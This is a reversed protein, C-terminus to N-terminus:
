RSEQPGAVEDDRNSVTDVSATDPADTDMEILPIVPVPVGPNSDDAIAHGLNSEDVISDRLDDDSDTDALAVFRTSSSVVSHERQTRRPALHVLIRRKGSELQACGMGAAAGPM